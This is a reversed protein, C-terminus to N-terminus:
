RGIGLWRLLRRWWPASPPQEGGSAAVMREFFQAILARTAGELMRGGVAAVKGGVDVGYRYSIRTGDEAADLTVQAEGAANGLPGDTEGALMLARPPELDSLRVRATFRGKVPGVGLTVEARYRYEGESVLEHCGAILAALRDPDLLMSWAAKPPVPVTTAGEGVLGRPGLTEAAAPREPAEREAGHIADAIRCATLPLTVDEIGLADSVANAICVPASMCNGEGIGKAGLPTFPSPTEMHVITPEPVECATPVHYEAFTGSLFGGDAAYAFHEYFTAGIAHAFGGLIQGDFLAPNLIRGADHLTVYRDIRARGTEADVEVGCFDFIFGHTASSNIEDADSPATLQPPSWYVTEGILPEVDAPLTGQAWHSTAALRRFPVANDPNDGARARGAAFVVRDPPINLRPAAISALRDRLRVAAMHAAGAVAGAFRSSYNGSSISWPDRATDLEVNVRVDDLGVGLVDAVVQALVTRHGQGQPTSSARVTVTGTPDVAVTATAVGGGKPGAKRREEATLVTTIYGMNSISPEVVAAYGISYLRGEARAADRRQILEALGGEATAKEVAAPYDGSDLVAGAPTRYPFAGHPVLNRRIVALPDLSLEFAIKHMLRELAFYVQPGGFGRVLGTPTKNTVVIRNVIELNHVAYAGTMNGHMRYLTAPEPARLYAGCDELQNYRLATVVGDPEVAAAIHIIRNTASTAAALHELRDEVWKVPRGAKRAALCLAVIYPFVGQKVGFSGGADAPMRLRLRNGPVKLASCMVPHLAFPGQFNSFVDYATEGPDFAAVVVYGEIPTASNRPYRVTLDVVRGAGAFATGPDGYRFLRESVLNGGVDPHLIPASPELAAGPDVVAPLPEYDVRVAEAADEARYRDAAVVMAVPEGVYRARDVALCWHEIPQKVASVFPAAWQRVDDGTLVATVGPMALAATADIGVLRAHPSRVFAAHQTAPSVPVDDAFRGRGSLLAADEVREVAQGVLTGSATM